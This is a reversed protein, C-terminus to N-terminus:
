THEESREYRAAQHWPKGEVLQLAEGSHRQQGRSVPSCSSHAAAFSDLVSKEVPYTAIGFRYSQRTVELSFALHFDPRNSQQKEPQGQQRSACARLLVRAAKFERRQALHRRRL